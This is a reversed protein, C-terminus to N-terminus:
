AVKGFVAAYEPRAARENSARAAVADAAVMNLTYPLAMWDARRARLVSFAAMQLTTVEDYTLGSLDAPASLVREHAVDLNRLDLDFCHVRGAVLREGPRCTPRTQAADFPM